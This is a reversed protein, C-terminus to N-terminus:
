VGCIGVASFIMSYIVDGCAKASSSIVEIPIFLWWTLSLFQLIVVGIGIVTNDNTFIHLIQAGFFYCLGM